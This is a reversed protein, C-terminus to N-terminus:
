AGPRTQILFSDPIITNRGYQYADPPLLTSRTYNDMGGFSECREPIPEQDVANSVFQPMLFDTPQRFVFGMGAQFGTRPCADGHAGTAGNGTQDPGGIVLGGRDERKRRFWVTPRAGVYLKRCLAAPM